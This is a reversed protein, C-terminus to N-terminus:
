MYTAAERYTARGLLKQMGSLCVHYHLPVQKPGRLDLSGPRVNVM